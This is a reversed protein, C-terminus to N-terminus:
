SPRVIGLRKMRSRLTSANMGLVAAAGKEGEIVWRKSALTHEIHRREAEVMSTPVTASMPVEADSPATSEPAFHPTDLIGDRCLVVARALLNELERINGPWDYAMLKQMMKPSIGTVRRGFQRSLREVFHTALEPIDERRDRLPPVEIPVVMLRYYLDMRFRGEKVADPLSRNTAALLRVDVKVTQNSGVPEFEQEQLVRLLKAQSELPLETIEDLFLTGGSAYEFRGFRNSSAGTFAGKVHGFLESEVLGASIAACNVKVM